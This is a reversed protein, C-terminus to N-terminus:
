NFEGNYINTTSEEVYQPQPVILANSPFMSPFVSVASLWTKDKKRPQYFCEGSPTPFEDIILGDENFEFANRLNAEKASALYEDVEDETLPSLSEDHKGLAILEEDTPEGDPLNELWDESVMYTNIKNHFPNWKEWEMKDRKTGMVQSYKKLHRVMYLTKTGEKNSVDMTGTGDLGKKVKYNPSTKFLSVYFGSKGSRVMHASEVNGDKVYDILQQKTRFVAKMDSTDWAVAANEFFPDNPIYGYHQIYDQEPKAVPNNFREQKALYKQRRAEKAEKSNRKSM